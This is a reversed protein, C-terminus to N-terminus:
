WDHEAQRQEILEDVSPLWTSRETEEVDDVPTASVLWPNACPGPHDPSECIAAGIREVIRDLEADSALLTLRIAWPRQSAMPRPSAALRYRGHALRELDDYTRAHHDPVDSCMRSVIHTRITSEAYVSGRRRLEDIVDQPQFSGDVSREVISPLAALIEDRATVAEHHHPLHVFVSPRGDEDASADAADNM